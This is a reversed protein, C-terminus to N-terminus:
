YRILFLVAEDVNREGDLRMEKIIRNKRKFIEELCVRLVAGVGRNFLVLNKQCNRRRPPGKPGM